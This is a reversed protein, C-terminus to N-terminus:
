ITATSLCLCFHKTPKLLSNIAYPNAKSLSHPTSSLQCHKVWSPVSITTVTDRGGMGWTVWHSSTKFYETFKSNFTILDRGPTPSAMCLIFPLSKWRCQKRQGHTCRQLASVKGTADPQDETSWCLYVGDIWPRERHKKQFCSVKQWGRGGWGKDEM